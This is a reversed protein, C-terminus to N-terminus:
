GLPGQGLEEAASRIEHLLDDADSVVDPDVTISVGLQDCYSLVGVICAINGVGTVIPHLERLRAGLLHLPVEAGPLNTVALNVFPQRALVEPALRRLLPIPVLDVVSFLPLLDAAQQSAKRARMEAHVQELVSRADGVHVPLDTVVFSFVNGGDGGDTDGVPVLVKPPRAAMASAADAGLVSRLARTVVTLVVDNLTVGRSRALDQLPPLPLSAWLFDRRARVRGTLPLAPARAPPSAISTLASLATSPAWRPDLLRRGAGALLEFQHRRRRRVGDVLLAPRGPEPEPRWPVPPPDPPADAELDLLATAASLLSLGDAVVHHVRLIVAVDGDALGDVTWLDWLPHEPDLPRGLLEAVLRRLEGPGGPAPLNTTRLHRDLDFGVDDVWFPRALDLPARRLRQRFRPILHLRSAVHERLEETRLRGSPERLPGGEFRCLAGIQLQTRPTTACLLTADEPSLPEATVM